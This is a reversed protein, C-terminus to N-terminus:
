RKKYNNAPCLVHRGRKRRNKIVRRGAVTLKRARFGSTRTRRRRTGQLTCAMSGHNKAQVVFSLRARAPARQTNSLSCGAFSSTLSTLSTCPTLQSQLSAPRLPRRVAVTAAPRFVACPRPFSCRALMAAPM